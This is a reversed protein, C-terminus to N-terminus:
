RPHRHPGRRPPECAGARAVAGRPLARQRHLHRCRGAGARRGSEARLHALRCWGPRPGRADGSGSSRASSTPSRPSPRCSSCVMTLGVVRRRHTPPPPARAEAPPWSWPSRPARSRSSGVGDGRGTSAWRAAEVERLQTAAITDRRPPRPRARRMCTLRGPAERTPPGPRAGAGCPGDRATRAGHPRAGRLRVLRHRALRHRALRHRALRLPPHPVSGCPTTPTRRHSAVDGSSCPSSSRLPTSAAGRSCGRWRSRWPCARAPPTCGWLRARACSGLHACRWRHCRRWPAPAAADTWACSPPSVAQWSPPSCRDSTRQGPRSCWRCGRRGCPLPRSATPSSSCTPAPCRPRCSMARLWSPSPSRAAWCSVPASRPERVAKSPSSVTPPRRASCRACRITRM